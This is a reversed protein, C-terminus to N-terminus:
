SYSTGKKKKLIFLILTLNRFDLTPNKITENPKKGKHLTWALYLKKTTPQKTGKSETKGTSKVCSLNKQFKTWM